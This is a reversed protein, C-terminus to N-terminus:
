AGIDPAAQSAVASRGAGCALGFPTAGPAGGAPLAYGLADALMMVLAETAKDETEPTDPFLVHVVGQWACPLPM